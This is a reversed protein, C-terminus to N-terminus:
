QADFIPEYTTGANATKWVGGSAVAVYRISKNRPHIAFAAIRGSCVAPGISRFRLGAFPNSAADKKPAAAAAAAVPTAAKPAAEKKGPDAKQPLAALPAIFLLPLPLLLRHYRLM